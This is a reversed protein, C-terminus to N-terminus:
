LKIKVYLNILAEDVSKRTHGKIAALIDPSMKGFGKPHKPVCSLIYGVEEKPILTCCRGCLPTQRSKVYDRACRAHLIHDCGLALVKSDGKFSQLCGM